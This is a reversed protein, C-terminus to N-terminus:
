GTVPSPKDKMKAKKVRTAARARARQGRGRIVARNRIRKRKIDRDIRTRFTGTRRKRPGLRKIRWCLRGNNLRAHRPKKVLTVGRPLRDCLRLRRAAADGRNRVVLRWRVSKGARARKKNVRKNLRIDPERPPDVDPPPPPSPPPPPGPPRPPMAGVHHSPDSDSLESELAGLGTVTATNQHQGVEATGSAEYTWTEGPDLEGDGDDDGGLLVPEVGQDDTLEVNQIPINGPNTVAYTWAVPDGVPVAPGTPDDADAGNTAKEVDIESVSGFYHSPDDDSLEAGTPDTGTVTAENEYDGIESSGTATCTMVELPELADGPCSVTVGQDDTVAIDDLPDNGTNIVRYTWTVPNGVPIFPGPPDDANAGNTLKELHIGPEAGFYHSPDTDAVEDAAPTVGTARALNTYQGATTTGTATCTMTEDVALDTQPCSVDGGVFDVVEVDTLESNGTNTVQYTWTVSDGVPIFPGPAQDADEGNTLKQLEIEGEVGFHHSPDDDTLVAGSPSTGEVSGINEYQGAEATSLSFCTISEGARLLVIDPCQVTVGQDDTVAIDTLPANGTNTVEYRWTVRGDVAISPGPPDDADAQNTSKEIDISPDEGFYHSPDSDQVTTGLADEGEVSAVNEYAGPDATPDSAEYTWTEDVDLLGDGDDDGGVFAPVVGQNDTLEVDGIPENGTNTVVYEWNVPDGVPNIPGVVDADQGNTSKEVDIGPTAGFYHSPDDASVETGFPDTATVAGLNEYQGAEAPAEATCTIDQRPALTDAPCTVDVGQDDSVEIDSLTVNGANTVLYTWTVPDGVPVFPGPPDDADVGNTDKEITIAPEPPLRNIMECTVIAQFPITATFGGDTADIDLPQDDPQDPTRFTCETADPDNVFGPPVGAPDEETIEVTSDADTTWQFTTFGGAGTTSTATDGTGDSPLVWDDPAPDAEATMEWGAGPIADDTGPDPTVDILKRVTVSPACLSFAAERMAQELDAFDEVRYVDDTTIDFTGSGDFVDPGSVDIIRDLSSPSDLGEGVAVTLIHSGTSKVANANPVARDKAPNNDAGTTEDPDALPVKLEYENEAQNPNGPDYTVRDQRVIRNPDGDTLFVTLHPRAPDPRPLFYRAVRFADEWHTNGGPNYDDDIYPEFIDAITDDTITTYESSATGPLPLRAVTSFESVAMRSGTNALAGTFARFAGRVDGAFDDVSGSEDLIMHVDIGCGLALDPNDIPTDDEGPAALAARGFLGVLLLLLLVLFATAGHGPIGSRGRRRVM